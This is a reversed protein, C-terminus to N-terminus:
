GGLLADADIILADRNRAVERRLWIPASHATFVLRVRRERGFGYRTERMAAEIRQVPADTPDELSWACTGYFAAGSTLLGALPLEYTAGWLSGSERANAGLTEIADFRM